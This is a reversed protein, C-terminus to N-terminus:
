SRPQLSYKNPPPAEADPTLLWTPALTMTEMPQRWEAPPDKPKPPVPLKGVMPWLWAQLMSTNDSEGSFTTLKPVTDYVIFDVSWSTVSAPSSSSDTFKIGSSDFMGMLTLQPFLNSSYQISVLNTRPPQGASGATLKPADVLQMFDYFNIIGGSAKWKNDQGLVPMLNGSQLTLTLRFEDFFTGRSNNPWVHLVTGVLTKSHTSRQPMSWSVDSPNAFWVLGKPPNQLLWETTSMIWPVHDIGNIEHRANIISSSSVDNEAISDLAAVVQDYQANAQASNVGFYSAM